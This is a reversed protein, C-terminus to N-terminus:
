NTPHVAGDVPTTEPTAPQKIGMQRMGSETLDTYGARGPVGREAHVPAHDPPSSGNEFSSRQAALYARNRPCGPANGLYLVSSDDASLNNEEVAHVVDPHWWVMDGPALEPLSCLANIILNHKDRNLVYGKGPEPFAVSSDSREILMSLMLWGVCLPSPVLQLSGRGKGQPSLALWGQFTRFMSCADAYPKVQTHARGTADFPDYDSNNESLLAGYAQLVSNTNFWNELSCDDLHPPIGGNVDHPPRIRLRDVYACPDNIEFSSPGHDPVRWLSNLEHQVLQLQSSQRVQVQAPSWFVDLLHQHKARHTLGSDIDRQLNEYYQAAQVYHKIDRYWREVDAQHFAQRVILCGRRKIQDAFSPSIGNDKIENFAISPIPSAKAPSDRQQIVKDLERGLNGTLQEYAKQRQHLPFGAKDVCAILDNLTAISASIAQETM